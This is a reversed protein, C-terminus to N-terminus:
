RDDFLEAIDKDLTVKRERIEYIKSEIVKQPVNSASGARHHFGTAAEQLVYYYEDQGDNEVETITHKAQQSMM